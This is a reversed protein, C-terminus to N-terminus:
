WWIMMAQTLRHCHTSCKQLEPSASTSFYELMSINRTHLRLLYVKLISTIIPNMCSSLPKLFDFQTSVVLIMDIIVDEWFSHRWHTHSHGKTTPISEVMQWCIQLALEGQGSIGRLISPVYLLNQFFEIM